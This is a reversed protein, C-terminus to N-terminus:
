EGWKLTHSNQKACTLLQSLFCSISASLSVSIAIPIAMLLIVFSFKTDYKLCQPYKYDNSNKNDYVTYLSLFLTYLNADIYSFLEVLYMFWQLTWYKTFLTIFHANHCGFFIEYKCPIIIGGGIQWM